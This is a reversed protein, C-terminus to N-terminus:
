SLNLVECKSMIRWLVLEKVREYNFYQPFNIPLQEVQWQSGAPREQAKQLCQLFYEYCPAVSDLDAVTFVYRKELAVYVTKGPPTSLLRQLTNVFAETVDNDYIVDAVLIVTVNTLKAEVNPCWDNAFFDLGLVIFNAKLLKCNRAANARILELIGGVEIDTCIVETAFMAAVISTLGVGSGLELVIHDQLFSPGHHLLFDGLLLAGRWIQRGVLALTTSYSHEIEIIGEEQIKDAKRCVILDGDEDIRVGCNKDSHSYEINLPYKFSFRSVVNEASLSPKAASDKNIAQHIESTVHYEDSSM